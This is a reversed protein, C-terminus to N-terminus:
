VKLPHCFFSSFVIFDDQGKINRGISHLRNEKHKLILVFAGNMYLAGPCLYSLLWFCLGMQKHYLTTTNWFVTQRFNNWVSEVPQFGSTSPLNSRRKCWATHLHCAKCSSGRATALTCNKPASSWECANVAYGNQGTKSIFNVNHTGKKDMLREDQRLYDIRAFTQKPASLPYM